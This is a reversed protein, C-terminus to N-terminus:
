GGVNPIFGAILDFTHTRDNWDLMNVPSVGSRPSRETRESVMVLRDPQPFPLPRLLAADVLAFIASNAGIGLALTTIAIAAFGPARTLQRLALFLDHRFEDLRHALGM